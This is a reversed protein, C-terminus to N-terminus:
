TGFVAQLVLLSHSFDELMIDCSRLCGCEELTISVFVTKCLSRGPTGSGPVSTLLLPSGQRGIVCISTEAAPNVMLAKSSIAYTESLLQLSLVREGVSALREAV